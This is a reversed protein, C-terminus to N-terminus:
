TGSSIQCATNFTISHIRIYFSHFCLHRIHSYFMGNNQVIKVLAMGPQHSSGHSTRTVDIQSWSSTGEEPCSVIIAPNELLRRGGLLVFVVIAKSFIAMFYGPFYCVLM